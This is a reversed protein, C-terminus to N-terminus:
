CFRWAYKMYWSYAPSRTFTRSSLLFITAVIPGAESDGSIISRNIRAPSSM